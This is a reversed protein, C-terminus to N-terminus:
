PTFSLHVIFRIGDQEDSEEFNSTRQYYGVDLGTNLRRFTYRFGVATFSVNDQRLIGGVPVEYDDREHSTSTRLKLRRTAAYELTAAARTVIFYNNLAFISFDVDRDTAATFAYRGARLSASVQGLIGSFDHEDPDHFKLTAPGGEARMAFRGADFLIGPAVYTRTGSKYTAYQFDYDGHEVAIAFSTRPLTKHLFQARSFHEKRDLIFLPLGQPQYRDLPFSPSSFRTSFTTSTRSSYKLEGSLGFEDSAITALRNIDGIKPRLHDQRLAYLDLFLHNFLFQVGGRASYNFQEDSGVDGNFYSYGPIVEGTLVVKKTVVYYMRTPMGVSLALGGDSEGTPVFFEQDFGIDSLQLRTFIYFPGLHVNAKQLDNQLERAGALVRDRDRIGTSAQQDAAPQALVVGPFLVVVMTAIALILSKGRM